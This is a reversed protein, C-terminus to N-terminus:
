LSFGLNRLHLLDNKSSYGKAIIINLENLITVDEIIWACYTPLYSEIDRIADIIQRM